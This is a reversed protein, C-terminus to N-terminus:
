PKPKTFKELEERPLVVYGNDNLMSVLQQPWELDPVKYREPLQDWPRLLPHTKDEADFEVGYRWGADTRERMWTEHKQKALATCLALHKVADLPIVDDDKARLRTESTEIDFDMKPQQDAFQHVISDVEEDRLNRTLPILYAHGAVTRQHVLRVVHRQNDDDQVTVSNVIGSPAHEIVCNFWAKVTTKDLPNDVTLKIFRDGPFGHEMLTHSSLRRFPRNLYQM